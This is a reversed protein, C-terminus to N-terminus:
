FAQVYSLAAEGIEARGDFNSTTGKIFYETRMYYLQLQLFSWKSLTYKGGLTFVSGTGSQIERKENTGRSKTGEDGRYIVGISGYAYIKEDFQYQSSFHFEFNQSSNIDYTQDDFHNFEEGEGNHTFNLATKFEWQDEKMGHSISAKFINRGNFRQRSQDNGIERAGLANSFSMFFDILGQDEGQERLRSLVYVEPEKFGQSQFRERLAVGYRLANDSAAEYTGIIGLFVKPHIKYAYDISLANSFNNIKKTMVAQEPTEIEATQNVLKFIAYAKTNPFFNLRELNKSESHALASFSLLLFLPLIRLIMPPMM